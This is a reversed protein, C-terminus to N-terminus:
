PTEMVDRRKALVTGLAPSRGFGWERPRPAPKRTCGEGRGAARREARLLLKRRTKGHGPRARVAAEVRATEVWAGRGPEGSFFSLPRFRPAAEANLLAVRPTSWRLIRALEPLLSLEPVRSPRSIRSPM